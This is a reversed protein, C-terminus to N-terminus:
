SSARLRDVNHATLHLLVLTGGGLYFLSSAAIVGEALWKLHHVPSLLKLWNLGFEQGVGDGGIIFLLVFVM